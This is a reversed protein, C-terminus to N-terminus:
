HGQEIRLRLKEIQETYRVYLRLNTVYEVRPLDGPISYLRNIEKDVMARCDMLVRLELEFRDKSM